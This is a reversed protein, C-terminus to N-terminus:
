EDFVRDMISSAKYGELYNGTPRIRRLIGEHIKPDSFNQGNKRYPFVFSRAEDPLDSLMLGLEKDSLHKTQEYTKFILGHYKIINDMLLDVINDFDKLFEEPIERRLLKMDDKHLLNDWIALPTINSILRHIRCYEDGKVKLRYGNQFRIIFGEETAPLDKAHLVLDSLSDFKYSKAIDWGLRRALEELAIRFMENGEADYSSLLTMGVRDYNIVIRNEPYIIEALYTHGPILKGDLSQKNLWDTAWIAQSSSLSGKTAVRWADNYFYIIGLSGDLKEFVEFPEDPVPVDPRESFNFFKPFPTAIVERKEVDLIVGRALMTIDNWERNYICSETYCYLRLNRFVSVRVHKDAVNQELSAYLTDFDITRATHKM